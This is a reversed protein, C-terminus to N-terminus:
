SSDPTHVGGEAVVRKADADKFEAMMTSGFGGPVVAQQLGVYEYGYKLGLPILKTVTKGTNRLTPSGCNVLM